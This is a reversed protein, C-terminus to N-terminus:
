DCFEMKYGGPNESQWAWTDKCMDALGLKSRWGLRVQARESNAYSSALDGVRRAVIRTKISHGCATEFAKVIENVTVGHGTGINIVDHGVQSTLAGLALVHAKALDVVHLYDREGTGDRTGYDDGFIQLESRIGVAVQAIFPMLNNPLGLPNEGILGSPHAGVPNFYRLSIASRESHAASWDGLMQEVMLKTRGYPNIPAVPHNEDYPLYQPEGYVTASSSFIIRHCGHSQMVELLVRSGSVNVDYYAMPNEVSEGVAKLGAFHIVGDPTFEAFVSELFLKDRIDGVALQIYTNTLRGVRAIAEAHGNILNDVVVVQHGARIVEVLTHSGIYGAGGTILIKM